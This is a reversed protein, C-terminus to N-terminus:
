IQPPSTDGGMRRQGDRGGQMKGVRNEMSKRMWRANAVFAKRDAVSLKSFGALMAAQRQDHGIQVAKREDDMARKLGSTDLKDADLVELMRDRAAKVAGREARPNGGAKMADRMTSRGAESLGAFMGGRRNSGRNLGRRDSGHGDPGARMGPNGANGDPATMAPVPPVVNQAFLPAAGMFLLGITISRFGPMMM